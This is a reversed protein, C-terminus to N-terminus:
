RDEAETPGDLDKNQPVFKSQDLVQAGQGEADLAGSASKGPAVPL